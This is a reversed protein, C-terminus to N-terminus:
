APERKSSGLKYRIWTLQLRGDKVALPLPDLGRESPGSLPKGDTAFRSDHCPCLFNGASADWGVACGLHPCVASFAELKDPAIRKIFAAGVVVDRTTSWADAVVPAIIEVKRPAAGIPFQDLPGLDLPDRATTVTQTGAPANAFRVIPVILGVGIVGGLACTAGKLFRRRDSNDDDM